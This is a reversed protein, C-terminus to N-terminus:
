KTSNRDHLQKKLCLEQLDFELQETEKRINECFTQRLELLAKSPSVGKPFEPIDNSLFVPPTSPTYTLRSSQRSMRSERSTSYGAGTFCEKKTLEFDDDAIGVPVTVQNVSKRVRQEDTNESSKDQVDNEASKTGSSTKNFETDSKKDFSMIESNLDRGDSIISCSEDTLAPNPLSVPIEVYQNTGCLTKREMQTDDVRSIDISSCHSHLSSDKAQNCFDKGKYRESHFKAGVDLQEPFKWNGNVFTNTYNFNKLGSGKLELQNNLPSKKHAMMKKRGKGGSLYKEPGKKTKLDPLHCSSLHFGVKQKKLMEEVSKKEHFVVPHIEGSQTPVKTPMTHKSQKLLKVQRSNLQEEWCLPEIPIADTFYMCHM